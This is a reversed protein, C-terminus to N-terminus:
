GLLGGVLNQLQLGNTLSNTGGKTLGGVVPLEMSEASHRGAAADAGAGYADPSVGDYDGSPNGSGDDVPEEDVPEEDMPEEDAPAEDAPKEDAPKEDAPKEDAPEEDAPEEDAPAEDAPEEDDGPYHSDPQEPSVGNGNDGGNDGGNSCQAAAEGDGLVGAAIGCINIPVNVPVAVQLNNLVGDVDGAGGGQHIGAEGWNSGENKCDAAAEGDGLLGVAVGCLNIPVDVPVAVAANNLIGDVDGGGTNQTIGGEAGGHGEAWGGNSLKAASKADGVAIGGANVPVHIPAVVSLNNGIGDVDNGGAGQGQGGHRKAGHETITTSETEASGGNHGKGEASADGLIGAAVGIVNVPVQIPAAVQLNNAIGDVDGGGSGQTISHEPLENACESAAYGDGLVGVAVSCLNIPIDIPAAVSANNLIGDTDGDSTSAQQIDAAQAATPALLLAGATLVGVSLTKRVWTKM